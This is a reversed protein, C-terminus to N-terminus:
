KWVNLLTREIGVQVTQQGVRYMNGRLQFRGGINIKTNSNFILQVAPAIDFLYRNNDICKDGLLELYLNVNLQRYDTYEKPLLLYGASASYSIMQSSHNLVDHHNAADAVFVKTYSTTASFAFKNYLQTAILGAKIGDNDGELTMEDYVYSHSSLGGEAFAAMRFHRHVNDVSLFRYKGYMKVGDFQLQDLRYYNSFAAGGSVMLNKNIGVIVQPLYRNRFYSDDRSDAFKAAVNLAVSKAPRTSAPESFVYLEQASISGALLM